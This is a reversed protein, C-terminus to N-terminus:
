SQLPKASFSGTESDSFADNSLNTASFNATVTETYSEHGTQNLGLLPQSSRGTVTENGM